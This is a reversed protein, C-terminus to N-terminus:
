NAARENPMGILGQGLASGELRGAGRPLCETALAFVKSELLARFRSDALFDMEATPPHAQWQCHRGRLVNCTVVRNWPGPARVRPCSLTTM